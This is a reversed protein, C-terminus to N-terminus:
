PQKNKQIPTPKKPTPNPFPFHPSTDHQLNTLTTKPTQTHSLLSSLHHRKGCIGDPIRLITGGRVPCAEGKTGESIKPPAHWGLKIGDLNMCLIKVM